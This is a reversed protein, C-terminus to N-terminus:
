DRRWTVEAFKEGERFRYEHEGQYAHNLAKGIRMALNHDSTEVRIGGNEKEIKTVRTGNREEALQGEKKILSLIDEEHDLLFSGSIKIIGGAETFRMDRFGEYHRTVAKKNTPPNSKKKSM